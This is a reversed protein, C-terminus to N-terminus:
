EMNSEVEHTEMMAKTVELAKFCFANCWAARLMVPQWGRYLGKVGEKKVVDKACEMLGLGSSSNQIRSKVIDMPLAIIWCAIGALGGSLMPDLKARNM